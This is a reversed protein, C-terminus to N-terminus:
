ERRRKGPKSKQAGSIVVFFLLLVLLTSVAGTVLYDTPGHPGPIVQLLLYASVAFVAVAGAIMAIKRSM